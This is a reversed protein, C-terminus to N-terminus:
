VPETFQKRSAIILGIAALLPLIILTLLNIHDLFEISGLFEMEYAPLRMQNLIEPVSSNGFTLLCSLTLASYAFLSLWWAWKRREWVGFSIVVFLLICFALIYVAQRGWILNGFLPFITQLFIALHFALIMCGNIILLLLVPMPSQNIRYVRPDKTRFVAEVKEGHYFWLLLVPLIFMFLAAIGVVLLFRLTATASDINSGYVVPYLFLLNILLIIGGALWLWLYLRSLPLAWHRLRISGIGLPLLMAALIYYALNHAVLIAFWVSGVGFGPYYFPGEESFLYFVYIELPGYYLAVLGIFLQVIGAIKVLGALLQPSDKLVSM